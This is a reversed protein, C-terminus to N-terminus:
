PDPTALPGICGPAVWPRPLSWGRSSSTLAQWNRAYADAPSTQHPTHATNRWLSEATQRWRNARGTPPSSEGRRPARPSAPPHPWVRSPWPAPPPPPAPDCPLDLVPVPNQRGAPPSSAPAPTPSRANIAPTRPPSPSDPPAPTEPHATHIFFGRRGISVHSVEM